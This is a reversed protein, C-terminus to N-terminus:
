VEAIKRLVINSIEAQTDKDNFLIWPCKVYSSTGTKGPLTFQFQVRHADGDAAIIQSEPFPTADQELGIGLTFDYPEAALDLSMHYVGGGELQQLMYAESRGQLSSIVVADGRASVDPRELTSVTIGEGLWGGESRSQAAPFADEEFDDLYDDTDASDESQPSGDAVIRSIDITASVMEGNPARNLELGDLRLSQPSQQLRELFYIVNELTSSPIRLNLMYERYGQGGEAMNGKGLSPIEVLNGETNPTNVPIGNSDLEQPVKRALRYIEQRLRDHIEAETWASSHQAAVIAYQAEVQERHAIQYTYSVLDDGLRSITNDLTRITGTVRQYGGVLVMLAVAIATLYALRKERVSLKAWLTLLQVITKNLM